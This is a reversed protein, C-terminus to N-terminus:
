IAKAGAPASTKSRGTTGALLCGMREYTARKKLLQPWSRTIRLSCKIASWRSKMTTTTQILSRIQSLHLQTRYNNLQSHTESPLKNRYEEVLTVEEADMLFRQSSSKSASHRRFRALPGQICKPRIGIAALRCFFSWDFCYHMHEPFLGVSAFLSGRWFVGPQHLNCERTVWDELRPSSSQRFREEIGRADDFDIVDGALWQLDPNRVFESAVLHLAGPCYLDDSNLFAVIEGTARSFGKNIAHAQGRDKESVWYAIHDEYKRITDVSNDISGGDIVIYELERYEQLLVSRITEELYAGQNYSPTVITIRPLPM